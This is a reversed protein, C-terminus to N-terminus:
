GSPSTAMRDRVAGVLSTRLNTDFPRNVASLEIISVVRDKRLVVVDLFVDVRGGGVEFVASFRTGATAEDEALDPLAGAAMELVRDGGAERLADAACTAWVDAVLTDFADEAATGARYVAALSRASDQTAVLSDENATTQVFTPSDVVVTEKPGGACGTVAEDVARSEVGAREDGEREVRWSRGVDEVVLISRFGLTRAEVLEQASVLADRGASPDPPDAAGIRVCGTLAVTAAAVAAAM